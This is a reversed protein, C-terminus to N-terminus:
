KPHKLKRWIPLPVHFPAKLWLFRFKKGNGLGRKPSKGNATYKRHEDKCSWPGFVNNRWFQFGLHMKAGTEHAQKIDVFMARAIRLTCSNEWFPKFSKQNSALLNAALSRCKQISLIQCRNGVEMRLNLATRWVYADSKLHYTGKHIIQKLGKLFVGLLQM